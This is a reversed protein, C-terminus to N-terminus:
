SPAGHWPETTWYEEATIALTFPYDSAFDEDVLLHVPRGLWTVRSDEIGPDTYSNPTVYLIGGGPGDCQIRLRPLIQLRSPAAHYDDIIRTPGFVDGGIDVQLFAWSDENSDSWTWKTPWAARSEPPTIWDGETQLEPLHKTWTGAYATVNFVLTGVTGTFRWQKVNLLANVWEHMLFPQSNADSYSQLSGYQASVFGAPGISENLLDALIRRSYQGPTHPGIYLNGEGEDIKLAEGGSDIIHNCWEAMLAGDLLDANPFFVRKRGGRAAYFNTPFKPVELAIQDVEETPRAM